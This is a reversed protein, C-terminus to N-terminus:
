CKAHPVGVFLQEGRVRPHDRGRPTGGPATWRNGACAPTIGAMTVGNTGPDVTGRARPPSGADVCSMESRSIQEGRVRPHDGPRHRVAQRPVSNGACAPTIGGSPRATTSPSATGRARPPSGPGGSSPPGRQFQEGRVRPHDEGDRWAPIAPPRNGACAPTIGRGPRHAGAPEATGRARPPSGWLDAIEPPCFRQEGRVRPSGLGKVRMAHNKSQEGLVRPHDWRGPRPTSTSGGTGRARPPSGGPRGTAPRIKPQEGRM